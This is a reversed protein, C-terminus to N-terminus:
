QTIIKLKLAFNRFLASISIFKECFLANSGMFLPLRNGDFAIEEVLDPTLM